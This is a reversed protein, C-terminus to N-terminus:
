DTLNISRGGDVIIQQGSIWNSKKSILFDALTAVDVCSGFGHPYNKLINNERHEYNHIKKVMNTKITGPLISNINIDPAFEIALSRMTADMAGKSANYVVTGKSGMGSLNSSIFIVKKLSNKNTNKILFKFIELCSFYNINWMKKMESNKILRTPQIQFTGASHIFGYILNNKILKKLDEAIRDTNEFNNQWIIHRNNKNCKKKIEKLKQMSTGQLILNYTKSLYIAIQSGIGSSSGTVLIFKKM